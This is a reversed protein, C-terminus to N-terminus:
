FDISLDSQFVFTTGFSKVSGKISRSYGSTVFESTRSYQSEITYNNFELGNDTQNILGSTKTQSLETEFASSQAGSDTQQDIEQSSYFPLSYHSFSARITPESEFPDPEIDIGLPEGVYLGTYYPEGELMNGAFAPSAILLTMALGLMVKM